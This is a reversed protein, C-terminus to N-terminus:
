FRGVFVLGARDPSAMPMVATQVRKRERKAAEGSMALGFGIAAMLASGDMMLVSATPRCTYSLGDQVFFPGKAGDYCTMTLAAESIMGVIGLSFLTWGAARRGTLSRAPKGEYDRKFERYRGEMWAGGGALGISGLLLVRDLNGRFGCYVDACILETVWQRTLVGGFLLGAGIFYGTGRNPAGPIAGPQPPANWENPVSTDVPQTNWSPLDSESPQSPPGPGVSPEAFPDDQEPAPEAEPPPTDLAPLEPPPESAREGEIQAPAIAPEGPQPQVPAIADARDDQVGSPQSPRQVPPGFLSLALALPLGSVM